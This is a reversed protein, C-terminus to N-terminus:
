FRLCSEAFKAKMPHNFDSLIALCPLLQLAVKERFHQNANFVLLNRDRRRTGPPAAARGFPLLGFASQFARDEDFLVQLFNAIRLTSGVPYAWSPINISVNRRPPSIYISVKLRETM